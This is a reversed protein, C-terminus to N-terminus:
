PYRVHNARDGAIGGFLQVESAGAPFSLPIRVDVHGRSLGLLTATPAATGGSLLSPVDTSQLGDSLRDSRGAASGTGLTYLVYDSGTALSRVLLQVPYAIQLIDDTHFRGEVRLVRTVGTRAVAGHLSLEPDTISGHAPVSLLALLSLLAVTTRLM